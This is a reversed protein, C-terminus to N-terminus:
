AHHCGNGPLNSQVGRFAEVRLLQWCSLSAGGEVACLVFCADVSYLGAQRADLIIPSLRFDQLWPQTNGTIAETHLCQISYTLSAVHQFKSTSKCLLKATRMHSYVTLMEM